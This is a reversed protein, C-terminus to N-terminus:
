IIDIERYIYYKLTRSRQLMEFETTKIEMTLSRFVLRCDNIRESLEKACETIKETFEWDEKIPKFSASVGLSKQINYEHVTRYIGMGAKM